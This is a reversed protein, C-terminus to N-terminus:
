RDGFILLVSASFGQGIGTLAVALNSVYLGVFGEQYNSPLLHQQSHFSDMTMFIAFPNYPVHALGLMVPHTVSDQFNISIKVYFLIDTKELRVFKEIEVTMQDIKNQLQSDLFLSCYCQTPSVLQAVERLALAFHKKVNEKQSLYRAANESM